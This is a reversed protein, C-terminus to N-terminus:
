NATVKLDRLVKALSAIEARIHASCEEPTDGISIYGLDVLRKNLAPAALAKVTQGHLMTVIERATKAPLLIGYWNGSQYGRYGLEAVTPVDPFIGSRKITTVALATIRKDKVHPVVTAIAAFYLPVHGAIVDTIAQGGGKYAIHTIDIGAAAKFIEMAINTPSGNGASGYVLKGPTAKAAAILEKVTRLNTKPHAIIVSPARTLEIVPLFDRRPDYGTSRYIFPNINYSNTTELLTYGDAPAKLVSVTGINGAAGPRNEVIFPQGLSEQLQQALLRAFLDSVGGPTYPVIIKVPKVPWSQAYVHNAICGLLLAAAIYSVISTLVSRFMAGGFVGASLIVSLGVNDHRSDLHVNNM